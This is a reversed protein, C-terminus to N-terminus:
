VIFKRTDHTQVSEWHSKATNGVYVKKGAWGPLKAQGRGVAKIAAFADTLTMIPINSSQNEIANKM